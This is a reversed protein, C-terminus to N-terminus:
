KVILPLYTHDGPVLLTYLQTASGGDNTAVIEVQHTGIDVVSPTWSLAGTIADITMGEPHQKLSFTPAPTGSAVVSYSYLQGSDTTIAPSSTIVAGACNAWPLFSDLAAYWVGAMKQYGSDNPHYPDFMDTNYDLADEQNVLILKDGQAIRAEVMPALLVNFAEYKPLEGQKLIILAVVVTIDENFTDITELIQEIEAIDIPYNSVQHGAADNTGIHLLIVDSPNNTLWQEGAILNPLIQDARYSSHGENQYDFTFGSQVGDTRSGVFDFDYGTTTLSNYLYWRYGYNFAPNYEEGAPGSGEGRTISNGLPMMDVPTSCMNNYGRAFYYHMSVARQSLVGQYIAVEDLTGNFHKAGDLHGININATPPAFQANFAHTTSIVDAGDVVLTTVNTLGDYSGAVHHWMGETIVKTSQLNVSTSNDSLKFCPVAM